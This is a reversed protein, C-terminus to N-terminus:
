EDRWGEESVIGCKTDVPPTDICRRLASGVINSKACAVDSPSAVVVVVAVVASGEGSPFSSSPPPRSRQYEIRHMDLAIRPVNRTPEDIICAQSNCM